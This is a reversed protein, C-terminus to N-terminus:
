PEVPPEVPPEVSPKTPAPLPSLPGRVFQKTLVLQRPRLWAHLTEPDGDTGYRLSDPLPLATVLLLVLLSLAPAMWSNIGTWDELDIQHCMEDGNTAGIPVGIDDPLDLLPSGVPDLTKYPSAKGLFTAPDSSWPSGHGWDDAAAPEPHDAGDASYVGDTFTSNDSPFFNEFYANGFSTAHSQVGSFILLGDIPLAGELV